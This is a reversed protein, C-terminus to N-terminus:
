YTVNEYRVHYIVEFRKLGVWIPFINLDVWILFFYSISIM